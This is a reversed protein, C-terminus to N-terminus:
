RKWPIDKIFFFKCNKIKLIREKKKFDDQLDTVEHQHINVDNAKFIEDTKQTITQSNNIENFPIRIEKPM